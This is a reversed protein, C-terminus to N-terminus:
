MNMVAIQKKRITKSDSIMFYPRTRDIVEKIALLNM